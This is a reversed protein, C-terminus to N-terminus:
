PAVPDVANSREQQANFTCEELELVIWVDVKLHNGGLKAVNAIGFLESFLGSIAGFVVSTRLATLVHACSDMM